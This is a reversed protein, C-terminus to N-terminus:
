MMVRKNHIDKSDSGIKVNTDHKKGRKRKWQLEFNIAGHVAHHMLADEIHINVVIGGCRQVDVGCKLPIHM